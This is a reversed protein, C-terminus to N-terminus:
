SFFPATARARRRCRAPLAERVQTCRRSHASENAAPLRSAKDTAHSASFRSDRRLKTALSGVPHAIVPLTVVTALVGIAVGYAAPHGWDTLYCCFLEYTAIAMTSFILFLWFAVYHGSVLVPVQGHNMRKLYSEWGGGRGLTRREQKETYDAILRICRVNECWRAAALFALLPPVYWAGMVIVKTEERALAYKFLLVSYIVGCALLMYRETARQDQVRAWIEDRLQRCEQLIFAESPKMIVHAMEAAFSEPHSGIVDSDLMDGVAPLEPRSANVDSDLMDTM